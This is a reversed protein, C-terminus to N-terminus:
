SRPYVSTIPLGMTLRLKTVVENITSSADCRVGIWLTKGDSPYRDFLYASSFNSKPLGSTEITANVSAIRNLCISCHGQEAVEFYAFGNRMRVERGKSWGALSVWFSDPIM